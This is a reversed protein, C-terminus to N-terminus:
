FAITPRGSLHVCLATQKWMAPTLGKPSPVIVELNVRTPGTPQLGMMICPDVARQTYGRTLESFCDAAQFEEDWALSLGPANKDAFKVAQLVQDAAERQLGEFVRHLCSFSVEQPAQTASSATQRSHSALVAIVEQTLRLKSKQAIVLRCRKLSRVGNVSVAMAIALPPKDQSNFPTNLGWELVAEADSPVSSPSMFSSLDIRSPISGYHYVALTQAMGILGAM